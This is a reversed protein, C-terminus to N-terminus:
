REAIAKRRENKASRQHSIADMPEHLWQTMPGDAPRFQFNSFRIAEPQKTLREIARDGSSGITRDNV